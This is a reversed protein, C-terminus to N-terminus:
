LEPIRSRFPEDCAEAVDRAAMLGPFVCGILVAYTGMVLTTFLVKVFGGVGAQTEVVVVAFAFMGLAMLGPGVSAIGAARTCRHSLDSDGAAQALASLLMLILTTRVLEFVGVVISFGLEGKPVLDEDPYVLWTLYYAVADLRTPVLGLHAAPGDPELSRAPSYDTGEVALVLLLLLHLTTATAAAPGYTRLGAGAPGTLCLGVGGAALLWGVTGVAGAATVFAPSAGATPFASQFYFVIVLLMALVFLGFATAILRCGWAARRFARILAAKEAPTLKGDDRQSTKRPPRREHPEPPASDRHEPRPGSPPASPRPAAGAPRTISSTAADAMAAAARRASAFPPPVSSSVPPPVAPEAPVNLGQGAAFVARCAPCRVRATTGDPVELGSGCTPCTLIMRRDWATFNM